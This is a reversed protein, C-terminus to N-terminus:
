KNEEQWLKLLFDKVDKPISREIYVNQMYIRFKVTSAKELASIDFNNMNFNVSRSQSIFSIYRNGSFCNRYSETNAYDESFIEKSPVGDLLFIIKLNGGFANLKTYSSPQQESERFIFLRNVKDPSFVKKAGVFNKNTRPCGDLYSFDGFPSIPYNIEATQIKEFEDKQWIPQYTLEVPKASRTDTTPACATVLIGVAM